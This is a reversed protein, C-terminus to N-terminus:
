EQFQSLILKEIAERVGEHENDKEMVYDAIGKINDLANNVAVSTGAMKLMNMDNESDGIAMTDCRDVGLAEILINFAVGKDTGLPSYDIFCPGARMVNVRNDFEEVAEKTAKKIIEPDSDLINIKVVKEDSKYLEMLDKLTKATVINTALNLRSHILYSFEDDNNMVTLDGDGFVASFNYGRDNCFNFSDYMVDIPIGKVMRTENNCKVMIGNLMIIPQGMIGLQIQISEVALATRGSAIVVYVGKSVLKRIVEVTKLPVVQNEPLLTGDLDIAILKIM